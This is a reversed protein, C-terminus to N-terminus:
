MRNIENRSIKLKKISALTMFIGLIMNFVHSINHSVEVFFIDHPREYCNESLVSLSLVAHLLIIISIPLVFFMSLKVDISRKKKM